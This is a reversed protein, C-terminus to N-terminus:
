HGITMVVKGFRQPSELYEHAARIQDLPFTKDIQPALQGAAVLDLITVLESRTGLTSGLVSQAQFYLAALNLTVEPGSTTGCAVYRGGKALSAMSAEWTAAGHHDFAIDVGRGNTFERARAMVDDKQYDFVREAGLKKAQEIKAAGHSTALVRAGCVRAIQIAASSVGSGASQILVTEGAQVRARAVLMHWATVFNVPISAAVEWAIGAPKPVVCPSPVACFEACGGHRHAGIIGFDPCLVDYGTLREASWSPAFGPFVVVEEGIRVDSVGPGVAAVTGAIDSGPIIPRPFSPRSGQRVWVDLHNLGCAKVAIVVEGSSAKPQEVDKIDLVEPGGEGTIWVAKM